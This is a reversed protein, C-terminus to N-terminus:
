PASTSLVGNNGTDAGLTQVGGETSTLGLGEERGEGGDVRLFCWCGEKSVKIIKNSKCVGRALLYVRNKGDARHTAARPAEAELNLCKQKLSIRGRLGM